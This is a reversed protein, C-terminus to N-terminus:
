FLHAFSDDIWCCNNRRLAYKFLVWKYTRACGHTRWFPNIIGILLDTYFTHRLVDFKFFHGLM